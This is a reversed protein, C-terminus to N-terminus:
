LAAILVLRVALHTWHHRRTPTAWYRHFFTYLHLLPPIFHLEKDHQVYMRSRTQTDHIISCLVRWIYSTGISCDWKQTLRWVGMSSYRKRASRGKRQGFKEWEVTNMM